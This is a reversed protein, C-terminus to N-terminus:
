NPCFMCVIAACAHTQIYSSLDWSPCTKVHRRLTHTHTCTGRSLKYKVNRQQTKCMKWKFEGVQVFGARAPAGICLCCFLKPWVCLEFVQLVNKMGGPLLLFDVFRRTLVCSVSRSAGPHAPMPWCVLLHGVKGGFLLPTNTRFCM